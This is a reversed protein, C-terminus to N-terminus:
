AADVVIAVSAGNPVDGDNWDHIAALLRDFPYLFDAGKRTGPDNTIFRGDATYGKLVLMHYLPGPPTFNPNGLERGAAPVIVLKGDSLARQLEEVTPGEVLETTVDYQRELLRATEAATTDQWYGFLEIERQQLTLLAQDADAPGDITRNSFYRGVMLAAAEECFDQHNADWVAFPAQSTFPVPVDVSAPLPPPEVPAPPPEPEVVSEATEVPAVPAEVGTRAQWAAQLDHRFAFTVVGVVLIAGFGVWKAM